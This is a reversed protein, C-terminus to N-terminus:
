ALEMDKLTLIGIGDRLTKVNLYIKNYKYKSFASWIFMKCKKLSDHGQCLGPNFDLFPVSQIILIKRWNLTWHNAEMLKTSAPAKVWLHM